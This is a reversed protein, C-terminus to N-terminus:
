LPRTGDQSGDHCGPWKGHGGTSLRGLGPSWLHTAHTPPATGRTRELRPTAQTVPPLEAKHGEPVSRFHRPGPLATDCVWMPFDDGAEGRSPGADAWPLVGHRTHLQALSHGLCREPTPGGVRSSPQTLHLRM